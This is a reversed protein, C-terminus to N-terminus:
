KGMRMTLFELDSDVVCITIKNHDLGNNNAHQLIINEFHRNLGDITDINLKESSVKVFIIDGEQATIVRSRSLVTLCKIWFKFRIWLGKM